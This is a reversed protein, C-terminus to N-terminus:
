LFMEPTSRTSCRRRARRCRRGRPRADPAGQRALLARQGLPQADGVADDLEAGDGVVVHRREVVGDIQQQKRRQVLAEAPRRELRHRRARGTTQERAPESSSTTPSAASVASGSSMSASAQCAAGHQGVIPQARRQDVRPSARAAWNLQSRVASCIIPRRGRRREGLGAQAIHPITPMTRKSPVGTRPRRSRRSSRCCRAGRVRRRRAHQDLPADADPHPPERDDIEARVPWWGSNLSSRRRDGDDEVALDVVM